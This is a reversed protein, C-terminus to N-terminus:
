GNPDAVTELGGIAFVSLERILKREMANAYDAFGNAEEVFAGPGRIVEAEFYPILDADPDLGAGNIVLANVVISDFPFAGYANAPPFGDNNAGDGSVDITRFLCNPVDEFMLSAHGLAHGLATPYEFFARSSGRVKQAAGILDAPDEILTWEVIESQNYRGSWEFVSLAVPDPSVFFANQVAETLLADALGQRQLADEEEDVSNSVDLALILALRCAEAPLSALSLLPLCLCLLARVLPGYKGHQGM